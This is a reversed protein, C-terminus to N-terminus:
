FDVDRLGAKSRDPLDGAEIPASMLLYGFSPVAMTENLRAVAIPMREKALASPDVIVDRSRFERM